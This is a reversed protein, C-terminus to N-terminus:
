KAAENRLTATDAYRRQALALWRGVAVEVREHFLREGQATEPVLFGRMFGDDYLSMAADILATAPQDNLAKLEAKAMQFVGASLHRRQLAEDAAARARKHARRISWRLWANQIRSWGASACIGGIVPLTLTLLVFSIAAQEHMQQNLAALNAPAGGGVAALQARQLTRVGARLQALYYLNATILVIVGAVLVASVIKLALRERYRPKFFFDAVFKFFLGLAAIGSAFALPQWLTPWNTWVQSLDALITYNTRIQLGDAALLSLPLDAAWLILAVVCYVIGLLWSYSSPSDLRHKETAQLVDDITELDATADQHREELIRTESQATEVNIEAARLALNRRRAAVEEFVARVNASRVGVRGDTLGKQYEPDNYSTPLPEGSSNDSREHNTLDVLPWPPVPQQSESRTTTTM